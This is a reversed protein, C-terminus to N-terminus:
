RCKLRLEKSWDAKATYELLMLKRAVSATALDDGNCVAKGDM